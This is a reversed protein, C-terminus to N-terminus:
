EEGNLQNDLEKRNDFIIEGLKVVEDFLDKYNGEAILLQRNTEQLDIM